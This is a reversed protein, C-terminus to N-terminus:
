GQGETADGTLGLANARARQRVGAMSVLTCARCKRFPQREGGVRRYSIIANDDSMAHGRKCHTMQLRASLADRIAAIEQPNQRHGPRGGRAMFRRAQCAANHCVKCQNRDPNLRGSSLEHAFKLAKCTLCIRQTNPNGGADVVRQRAHLLMHYAHDQCVVLNSPSNNYRNRDVHHVEAGRPLPKGM